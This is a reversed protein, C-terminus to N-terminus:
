WTEAERSLDIKFERKVPGTISLVRFGERNYFWFILDDSTKHLLRAANLQEKSLTITDTSEQGTREDRISVTFTRLFLSIENKM